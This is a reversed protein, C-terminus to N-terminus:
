ELGVREHQCQWCLDFAPANEEGCEPCIWSSQLASEGRETHLQAVLSRARDFDEAGVWLRPNIAVAPLDGVANQLQEGVVHVMIGADELASAILYAAQVNAASFVERIESATM